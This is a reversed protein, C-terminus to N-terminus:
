GFGAVELYDWGEFDGGVFDLKVIFDFNYHIIKTPRIRINKKKSWIIKTFFSKFQLFINLLREKCTILPMSKGGINTFVSDVDKYGVASGARVGLSECSGEPFIFTGERGEAGNEGERGGVEFFEEM